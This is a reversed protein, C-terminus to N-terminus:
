GILSSAIFSNLDTRTGNPDVRNCPIWWESLEFKNKYTMMYPLKNTLRDLYFTNIETSNIFLYEYTVNYTPDKAKLKMYELLFLAPLYPKDPTAKYSLYIVTNDYTTNELYEKLQYVTTITM